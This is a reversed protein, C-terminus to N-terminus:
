CVQHGATRTLRPIVLFVLNTCIWWLSYGIKIVMTTWSGCWSLPVSFLCIPIACLWVYAKAVRITRPLTYITSVWRRTRCNSREESRTICISRTSKRCRSRLEFHNGYRWRISAWKCSRDHAEALHATALYICLRASIDGIRRSRHLNGVATKWAM